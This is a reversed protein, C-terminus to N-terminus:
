EAYGDTPNIIKSLVTIATNIHKHSDLMFVAFDSTTDGDLEKLDMRIRNDLYIISDKIDKNSVGKIKFM